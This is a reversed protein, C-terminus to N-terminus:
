TSATTPRLKKSCFEKFQILQEETFASKPLVSYQRNGYILVITQKGEIMKSYFDWSIRSNANEIFYNLGEDSFEIVQKLNSKKNNEFQLGVIIRSLRLRPILTLIGVFLFLIALLIYSFGANQFIIYIAVVTLFISIILDIKFSLQTSEYTDFGDLFESKKLIYEIKIDM